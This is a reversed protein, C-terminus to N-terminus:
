STNSSKTSAKMDPTEGGMDWTRLTLSASPTAGEAKQKGFLDTHLFAMDWFRMIGWCIAGSAAAIM